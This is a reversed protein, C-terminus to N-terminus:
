PAPSVPAWQDFLTKIVAYKEPSRDQYQHCFIIVGDAHQHAITMVQRVYEPTSDNLKSHKTAYVDVIIPVSPGFWERFAAIEKDLTDWESLNAKGMEHRYPFLIGDAFPRYKAVREPKMQHYYLCPVFALRPNIGHSDDVMARLCASTFVPADYSFDDISWAVLNTEQLSLRAIARGWAVFDLGFPQSYPPESPPVLTIWVKINNERAKPLFLKLDDWDNSQHHVLFNYTNARIKVLEAVLQDVDVRKDARRPEADYTGFIGRLAAAPEVPSHGGSASACGALFGVCVMALLLRAAALASAYKNKIIM